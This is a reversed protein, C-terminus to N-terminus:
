VGCKAVVNTHVYVDNGLESGSSFGFGQEKASRRIVGEYRQDDVRGAGAGKWSGKGADAKWSKMKLFVSVYFDM